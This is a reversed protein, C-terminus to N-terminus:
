AHKYFVQRVDIGETKFGAECYFLYFEWMRKFRDDFGMDKITDWKELFRHRWEKLTKAYDQPFIRENHLVLKNKATVAELAAPSPLMGGPFIYRQIFDPRKRYTEFGENDITIIQLGATGEPKLCNRIKEFYTPWYQEGVAEFMEISAIHDYTGQEDRYDQFKFQAKEQLGAKKIRSRAYDLQEKSITLGTVEAGIEKTVFEAFGGWGCGIELVHSEPTIGMNKALSRYKDRQASELSNAGDEYIASSYTMSPDLWLEYFENGLDYHASINRQSGLRNNRNLWHRFKQVVSVIPNHGALDNYISRNAAFFELMTTVDPSDWDRDIYSEAVGITGSMLTKKPLNWNYLILSAIPGSNGSDFKFQRGGPLQLLLKGTDIQVLFNFIKRVYFPLSKSAEQFNNRTVLVPKKVDISVSM